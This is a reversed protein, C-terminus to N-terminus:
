WQFSELKMFQYGGKEAGWAQIDNQDFGRDWSVLMKESITVVSTAYKADKIDSICGKGETGGEFTLEDSRKLYITCGERETLKDASLSDFLEPSRHAGIFKKPDPLTYVVSAIKGSDSRSLHYVRQRYPTAEHGSVAQEVYLWYGDARDKWIPIMVLRIDFYEPDIKSQELSSFTGALYQALLQLDDPKPPNVPKPSDHMCATIGMIIGLVLVRKIVSNAKM